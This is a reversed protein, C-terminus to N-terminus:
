SQYHKINTAVKTELQLDYCSSPLNGSFWVGQEVILRAKHNPKLKFLVEIYDEFYNIDTKIKSLHEKGPLEYFSRINVTYDIKVQGIKPKVIARVEEEKADPKASYLCYYHTENVNPNDFYGFKIVSGGLKEYLWIRYPWISKCFNFIESCNRILELKIM